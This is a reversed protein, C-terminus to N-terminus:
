PFDTVKPTVRPHIATTEGTDDIVHSIVGHDGLAVTIMDHFRVEPSKPTEIAWGQAVIGSYTPNCGDGSNGGLFDHLVSFAQAHVNTSAAVALVLVAVALTVIRFPQASQSVGSPSVSGPYMIRRSNRRM